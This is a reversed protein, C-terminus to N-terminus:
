RAFKKANDEIDMGGEDEDDNFDQASRFFCFDPKYGICWIISHNLGNGSSLFKSQDLNFCFASLRKFLM